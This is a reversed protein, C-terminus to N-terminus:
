DDKQRHYKRYESITMGENEKFLRYLTQPASMGVLEAIEEVPKDTYRLYNKAYNLRYISLTKRFSTGFYDSFIRTIHRPTIHFAKSVDELSLNEQYHEQMFKTIKVALNSQGADPQGEDGSGATLINRLVKIFYERCYDVLLLQWGLPKETAEREIASLIGSCSNADEAIVYLKESLASEFLRVFEHEPARRSAAESNKHIGFVFVVYVKKEDPNYVAGHSVGPPILIFHNPLLLHEQGGIHMRMRGELIYYIEYNLHTHTFEVCTEDLRELYKVSLEYDSMQIPIQYPIYLNSNQGKEM